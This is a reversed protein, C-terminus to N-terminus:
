NITNTLKISHINFKEMSIFIVFMDLHMIKIQIQTWNNALHGMMM